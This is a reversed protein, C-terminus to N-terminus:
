APTPFRRLRAVLPYLQCGLCIAFAANLFAAVLAFGVAVLGLASLGTAFGVVGVVAFM